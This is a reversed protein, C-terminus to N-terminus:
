WNVIIGTSASLPRPKLGPISQFDTDWLNEVLFSLRVNNAFGPAYHLGLSAVAGFDNSNRANNDTQHRLTQSGILQVEPTIQWFGSLGLLHEPYDLEYLGAYFDYDDKMIWQYYLQIKLEDAALYNVKADVGLVDLMGLDNATWAVNAATSKVWDQANEQRRYFASAQWDLKASLYQHLGMEINQAHQLGLDTTGTHYPDSYFLSQFDPQQVTESYATFLMTNDTAHFDIGAQPLWEAAEDTQFVSNLGAKVTFREFRAEPLILISGRTRHHNGIDGDIGEYELDGRLNLAIHQIELTRGEVMVSGFQSDVDSSFVDTPIRYQHDFERLAVGARIYSNNLDGKTAGAYLLADETREEAYVNEPIGYYGQAGYEKRQGASLIDFQWDNKMFQVLAGATSREMDNKDYDISRAKEWDVYGGINGTGGFLSVNYREDTGMSIGMGLQPELLPILLASTGLLYGSINDLGTRAESDSLLPWYMPLESHYHASYPVKLNIGNLSLGTGSYSSGRISLDQQALGQPNVLIAPNEALVVGPLFLCILSIRRLKM